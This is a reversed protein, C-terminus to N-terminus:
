HCGFHGRKYAQRNRSTEKGNGQSTIQINEDKILAFEANKNHMEWLWM